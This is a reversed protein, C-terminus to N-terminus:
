DSDVYSNHRIRLFDKQEAFLCLEIQGDESIISIRKVFCDGKKDSLDAIETVVEKIDHINLTIM